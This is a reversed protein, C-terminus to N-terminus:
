LFVNCDSKIADNVTCTSSSWWFKNNKKAQFTAIESRSYNEFLNQESFFFDVVLCKTQFAQYCKKRAKLSHIHM